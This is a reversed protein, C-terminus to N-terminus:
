LMGMIFAATATGALVTTRPVWAPKSPVPGDHLAFLMQAAPVPAPFVAPVAFVIAAVRLMPGAAM